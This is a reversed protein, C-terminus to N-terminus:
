QRCAAHVNDAVYFIRDVISSLYSLRLLSDFSISENESFTVIVILTGKCNFEWFATYGVATWNNM